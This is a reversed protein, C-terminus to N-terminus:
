HPRSSDADRELSRAHGGWRDDLGVTEGLVEGHLLGRDLGDALEAEADRRALEDGEEPGVAGALRRAQAQERGEDGRAGAAGADDAVVDEGVGGGHAGADAVDALERAAAERLPHAVLQEGLAGEVAEGS